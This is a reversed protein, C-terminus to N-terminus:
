PGVPDIEDVLMADVRGDRDFVDCPGNAVQDFLALRPAETEGLGADGINAAGVANLRHRRKL